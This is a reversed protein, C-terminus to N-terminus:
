NCLSQKGSLAHGIHGEVMFQSAPQKHWELRPSAWTGPWAAAVTQKLL